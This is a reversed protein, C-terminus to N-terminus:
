STGRLRETVARAYVEPLMDTGGGRKNSGANWRGGYAPDFEQIGLRQLTMGPPAALGLRLKMVWRPPQHPAATLIVVAKPLLAPFFEGDISEDLVGFALPGDLRIRGTEM